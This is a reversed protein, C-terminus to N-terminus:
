KHTSRPPRRRPQSSMAGSHISTEVEPRKGTAIWRTYFDIKADILELALEWESIAEKVRARHAILMDLTAKSGSSGRRARVTYERLEAVSMGTRRLRDLLELWSAHNANYVRRGATDRVVGPLLGQTEYWRIGHVSRGTRRSLEGIRFLETV